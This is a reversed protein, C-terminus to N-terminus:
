PKTVIFNDFHIDTGPEDYTGALLGVDGSAFSTDSVTFLEKGNVSLSLRSGVCEATIHNTAQGQHIADDTNMNEAGLLEQEGNETKGIGYYGDSSIILFYFNDVDQYRCIIGFDNDDPGGAKTADVEIRADTFSKGPNAWVDLNDTNVFIRYIGNEYDTVGDDTRVSDWGSDPNSFDDQFLINSSADDGSVPPPTEGGGTLTQCALSSLLVVVLALVPLTFRKM